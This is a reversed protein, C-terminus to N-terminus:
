GSALKGAGFKVETTMSLITCPLPDTMTLTVQPTTSYGPLRVRKMGSFGTIGQNLLSSGLNRFTVPIGDVPLTKAQFLQIDTLVKRLREGMTSQGTAALVLNLTKASATYQNGIQTSSSIRSLTFNGANDVTVDPHVLGDAIVQVTQGELGQAGQFSSADAETTHFADLYIEQDTLKELFLGTQLTSGDNDFRQTLAYLSDDIVTLGKFNGNTTWKNWGVVSFEVNIGM